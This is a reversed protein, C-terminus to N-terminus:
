PSSHILHGLAPQPACLRNRDYIDTRVRDAKDNILPERTRGRRKKLFFRHAAEAPIEIGSAPKILRGDGKHKSREGAEALKCADATHLLAVQVRKCCGRDTPGLIPFFKERQGSFCAT